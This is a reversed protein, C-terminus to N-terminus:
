KKASLNAFADRLTRFQFSFGHGLFRRPICRSSLLALDGESGMLWAGARVFPVPVPPSWPRHLARRLERMFESNTVPLPGTANLVGRLEPQELVSLFIRVLDAVHIWSIFQRGNGAAGGLFWRTLKELLPLAGGDRGLVVGLRLVVKRTAPLDLANFAGEWQRCVEAPFDSGPPADEAVVQEGTDGYYGVGSAQAFVKPPTTCNAIAKGLARVSDVRSRIIERRNGPTHRCNINKGTLNIIAEAGEIASSWDGVTKGDWQLYDVGDRRHAAGRGLVVVHHGQAVLVPALAQGVFGSGGALIIRKM